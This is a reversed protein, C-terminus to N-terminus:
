IKILLSLGLYKETWQQCVVLATWMNQQHIPKLVLCVLVATWCRMYAIHSPNTNEENEKTCRCPLMIHFDIVSCPIWQVRKFSYDIRSICVASLYWTQRLSNTKLVLFRKTNLSSRCVKKLPHCHRTSPLRSVKSSILTNEPKFYLLSSVKKATSNM